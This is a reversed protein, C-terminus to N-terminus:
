SLCATALQCRRTTGSRIAVALLGIIWCTAQLCPTLCIRRYESWGHSRSGDVAMVCAGLARHHRARNEFEQGHGLARGDGPGTQFGADGTEQIQQHDDETAEGFDADLLSQDCGTIGRRGSLRDHRVM